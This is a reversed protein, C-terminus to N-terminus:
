IPYHVFLVVDWENQHRVLFHVLDMRKNIDEIVSTRSDVFSVEMVIDISSM